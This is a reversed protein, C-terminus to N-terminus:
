TPIQTGAKEAFDAEREIENGFEELELSEHHKGSRHLKDSEKFVANAYARLAVHAFKDKYKLVFFMDGPSESGFRVAKVPVQFCGNVITSRERDLTTERMQILAYKGRGDANINRDLKMNKLAGCQAPPNRQENEQEKAIPATASVCTERKANALAKLSAAPIASRDVGM